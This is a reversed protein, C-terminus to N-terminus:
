KALRMNSMSIGKLEMMRARPSHGANIGLRPFDFLNRTPGVFGGYASFLAKYDANKIMERIEERINQLKGFPFSFLQFPQGLIKELQSRSELVEIKAQTLNAKGLHAHYVTHAGVTVGLRQLARVDELTLNEFRHPFQTEDHIFVRDTGVFGSSVFACGPAGEQALIRAGCTRVDRYYDDFHIAVATPEIRTGGAIQGIMEETSVLRYYHRLTVLHGAFRRTNVTLVDQSFDNVRHYRLIAGRSGGKRMRRLLTYLGSRLIALWIALKIAQRGDPVFRRHPLRKALELRQARTPKTRARQTSTPQRLHVTTGRRLQEIGSVLVRLGEQDLKSRLSEPTEKPHIPVEGVAVVDGTDLGDDVFHITVGASACDDYIEWFGPPTRRYEPVKGKHVNICGLRPASFLPRKLIRTGLVVGLDVAVSQLHRIATESNLNGSEFVRFGYTKALHDLDREPFAKNLLEDVEKQPIVQEALVELKQRLAAVARYLVYTLGERRVNRKLNRWRERPRASATDVLVALVEVGEIQCVRGIVEATGSDNHGVLFAIKLINTPM